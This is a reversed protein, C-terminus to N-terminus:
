GATEAQGGGEVEHGEGLKEVLLCRLSLARWAFKILRAVRRASPADDASPAAELTVRWLVPGRPKEDVTLDDQTYWSGGNQFDREPM